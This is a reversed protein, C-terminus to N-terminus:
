QLFTHINICGDLSIKGIVVTVTARSCNTFQSNILVEIKSRSHFNTACFEMVVRLALFLILLM